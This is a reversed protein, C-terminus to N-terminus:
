FKWELGCALGYGGSVMSAEATLDLDQAVPIQAGVFGGFNGDPKVTFSEKSVGGTYTSKYDYDGNFYYYLPGCYLKWNGMDVTPGVTFMLDYAELEFTDKWAGGVDVGSEDWSTDLINMQLAAGWSIKEGKLFTVRTGWGFAFDNDFNTAFEGVSGSSYYQKEDEKVDAIGISGYIEWFDTVGYSLTAYHRQTKFDEIKFKGYSSAGGTDFGHYNAKDMDQTSYSYNYGISWQGKDLEATPPGILAFSTSSLFLLVLGVTIMRLKM